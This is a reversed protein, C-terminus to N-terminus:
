GCVSECKTEQKNNEEKEEEEGWEERGEVDM